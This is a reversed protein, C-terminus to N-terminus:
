DRCYRVSHDIPGMQMSRETTCHTMGVAKAKKVPVKVQARVKPAAAALPKPVKFHDVNPPPAPEEPKPAEVAAVPAVPPKALTNVLAAASSIGAGWIAITALLTKTM